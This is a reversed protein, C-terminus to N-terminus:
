EVWAKDLLVMSNLSGTVGHVGEGWGLVETFAAWTVFPVDENVLAQIDNVVAKQEDVTPAVQFADILADMEPSTYMGYTQNGTSSMLAFFRPLPDSDRLSVSWASMEYDRDVAIRQIRDAITQTYVIEVDFGVAELQAQVALARARSTADAGDLYELTGDYGDAMAEELLAKAAEADPTTGRVDGAWISKDPFLSTGALATGEWARINLVEPDVALQIAQRVRVDSGAFGEGANILAVSSAGVNAAYGNFGDDVLQSAFNSQLAFSASVTGNRLSDIGAQQDNLFVSRITALNPAGGWYDDRAALVIEEGPAWSELVFPGAGVPVFAEAAGTGPAVIMGPGTSLIGPFLSWPKNLTYTVTLPDTAEISTVNAKWQAAEPAPMSAYREQSAKVASADLVQGDSFTVGDRLTVTWTQFDASPEISEALQPVFAQSEVDWRALSDYINLMELGGTSAATITVAPDLSRPETYAAWKFEGGTVPTGGEDPRLLGDPVNLVASEPEPTAGDTGDDAGTCGSLALALAAISALAAVAGRRPVTM